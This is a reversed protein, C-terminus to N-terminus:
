QGAMSKRLQRERQQAQLSLREVALALREKKQRLVRGREERVRRDVGGGVDDDDDDDEEEDDHDGVDVGIKRWGDVGGQSADVRGRLLEERACLAEERRALGELCGEVKDLM